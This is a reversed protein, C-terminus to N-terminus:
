TEKQTVTGHVPPRPPPLLTRLFAREAESARDTRGELELLRKEIVGPPFTVVGTGQIQGASTANESVAHEHIGPDM